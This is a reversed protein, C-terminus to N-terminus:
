DSWGSNFKVLWIWNLRVEDFVRFTLIGPRVLLVILAIFNGISSITWLIVNNFWIGISFNGSGVWCRKDLSLSSTDIFHLIRVRTEFWIDVTVISPTLILMIDRIFNLPNISSFGKM